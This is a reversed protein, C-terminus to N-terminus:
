AVASTVELWRHLGFGACGTVITNARDFGFPSSFHTGHFNFSAVALDGATTEALLEHKMAIELQMKQRFANRQSPYFHDNAIDIRAKIGMDNALLLAREKALELQSRVFSRDGVFVFERVFFEWLRRLGHFGQQENRYVKVLATIAGGPPIGREQLMPYINLCAAPTLFMRRYTLDTDCVCGEHAIRSLSTEAIAAAVTLQTPFATQYGCRAMDDENVLSPVQWEQTEPLAITEIIRQDITKIIEADGEFLCISGNRHLPSRFDRNINKMVPGM